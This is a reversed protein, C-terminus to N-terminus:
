KKTTPSAATVVEGTIKLVYPVTADKVMVQISKTFTGGSAANYGVRITSKKGPAIPAKEWEPTTCGCSTVVNELVVPKNLKNEFEFSYYVPKGQEIKGFNHESQAFNIM